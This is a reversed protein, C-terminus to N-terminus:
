DMMWLEDEFGGAAIAEAYTYIDQEGNRLVVIEGFGRDFLDHGIRVLKFLDLVTDSEEGSPAYSEQNDLYWVSRYWQTHDENEEVNLEPVQYTRLFDEAQVANLVWFGVNVSQETHKGLTEGNHRWSYRVTLRWGDSYLKSQVDEPYADPEEGVYEWNKLWLTGTYREWGAAEFAAIEDDTMFCWHADPYGAANVTYIDGPESEVAEINNNGEAVASGLSLLMAVVVFLSVFRYTKTM